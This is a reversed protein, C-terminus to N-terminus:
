LRKVVSTVVGWIDFKDNDSITIPAFNDNEALLQISDENYKIRKVLLEDNIAAVVVKGNTAKLARDVVLIDGNNIGAKMMSNGSVRMLFTSKPNQVLYENLDLNGEKAVNFQHQIPMSTPNMFIPLRYVTNKSVNFVSEAKASSLEVKASALSNMAMRAPSIM